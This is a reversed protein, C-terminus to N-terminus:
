TECSYLIASTLAADFVKKKGPFPMSANKIAFM